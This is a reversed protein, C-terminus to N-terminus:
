GHTPSGQKYCCQYWLRFLWLLLFVFLILIVWLWRCPICQELLPGPPVVVSIGGTTDAAYCENGPYTAETEWVGGSPNVLFDEFCGNEDTVIDHYITEGDPATYELTIHEYPRPPNTCGKSHMIKCSQSDDIDLMSPTDIAHTLPRQKDCPGLETELDIVVSQKLNVQATTGGLQLLTDGSPYWASVTVYETSCVPYDEPAQIEVQALVSGGVNLYTKEPIVNATWGVPVNDARLYVLIPRDYPNAVQIPQVVPDYPSDSTTDYERINEQSVQNYDNIDNLVDAIKVKVCAHPGNQGPPVPEPTWEVWVTEGDDTVPLTEIVKSFHKNFTVNGGTDPDVGGGDIGQYPDSVWLDVQVNHAIGPGHNYIRAYIRNIQGPRPTDGRDAPERTNGVGDLGNVPSDVWIDMSRWSQDRAHIWADVDTAPPTYSIRVQYDEAGTPALVEVDLGSDDIDTIINGIQLAANTLNNDGPTADVIRLPGFGQSIDENVYYVLVGDSPVNADYADAAQARAEIYFSVRENLRDTVEATTGVQILERGTGDVSQRSLPFSQPPLSVNPRPIFRVDADELWDPKLKNWGMFHVNTFNGAGDDAMNGWGDAYPRPFVAGEHEYLDEMGFHHGLAHTFQAEQHQFTHVSVSLLKNSFAAPVEYPWPGTTAWDNQGRTEGGSGDDNTIILLRDFNSFIIDPRDIAVVDIADEVLDILVNASTGDYYSRRIGPLEHWGTTIHTLPAQGYAVATLYNNLNNITSTVDAASIPTDPLADENFRALVVLTDQGGTGSPIEPCDAAVYFGRNIFIQCLAELHSGYFLQLDATMVADAGEVFSPNDPMNYNSQLALRDATTKGMDTLIDWLTASWLEGDEHVEGAYDAPYVKTNDASRACTAGASNMWHNLWDWEAYCAPDWGQTISADLHSSLAWYDSFGEGISGAHGGHLYAGPNQNDQISHGYEHLIVDADEAADVGGDGMRLYGAGVPDFRYSANDDTRGHADVRIQRNNADIFGLTQIYRQSRDIYHYIMVEEFGAQSRDYNFTTGAETITATSPAHIDESIVFPGSIRHVGGVPDDLDRLPANEYAGAPIAAASDGNDVLTTDNLVQVPNPNFANGQGDVSYLEFDRVRLIEGTQGDVVFEMIGDSETKILVKYALTARQGEDVLFVIREVKAPEKLKLEKHTLPPPKQKSKAISQKAHEELFREIAKKKADDESTTPKTSIDINPLYANVVQLIRGERDLNVKVRGNEVPLGQYTQQLEIHQGAASTHKRLLKLDALDTKLGFLATNSNLFTRAREVGQIKSAQGKQALPQMRHGILSTVRTGSRSWRVVWNRNSQQIFHKLTIKAAPSPAYQVPQRNQTQAIVGNHLLVVLLFSFLPSIRM